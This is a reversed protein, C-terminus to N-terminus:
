FFFAFFCMKPPLWGSAIDVFLPNNVGHVIFDDRATYSHQNTTSSMMPGSLNIGLFFFDYHDHLDHDELSM